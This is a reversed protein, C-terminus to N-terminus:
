PLPAPGEPVYPGALEPFPGADQSALFWGAGQYVFESTMLASEETVSPLRMWSIRAAVFARLGDASLKADELEFDTITLDRDDRSAARAKEFAARREPVLFGAAGRYDRWRIREFFKEVTPKLGELGSSKQGHACAGAFLLL